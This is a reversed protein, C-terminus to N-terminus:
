FVGMVGEMDKKVKSNVIKAYIMLNKMGSHGIMKGVSEIPVGNSLTVTTAFTHRALHMFLNKEIEALRAIEKLALNLKQNSPVGWTFDRCDGTPSYKILIKEAVPLLPVYSLIGTKERYKEIHKSGDPDIIIHQSRLTTIDSYALGTFCAFLFIDRNRKMADTLGDLQQLTKIEETTLYDRKVPQQTLAMSVFPNYRIVGKKVPENLITKLCNMLAVASNNSNKKERRLYNFFGELFAQDVRTLPINKLSLKRDLYEKLYTGTRQYKYYTTLALDVDVRHKIENLKATVYEWLTEPAEEKGKLREVLENLSFDGYVIKLKEFVSRCHHAIEHLQQNIITARKAKPMVHGGVWNEPLVTLGTNVDKKVGRYKLRLVIPHEGNAFRYSTRLLFSTNLEFLRGTKPAHQM